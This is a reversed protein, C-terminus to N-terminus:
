ASIETLEPDVRSEFRQYDTKHSVTMPWDTCEFYHSPVAFLPLAHRAYEMLERRTAARDGQFEVIAYLRQGRHKDPRSLVAANRIGPMSALVSEVSEPYINHGSSVIMRDTRGSLHLFGNEDLHGTDGTGTFGGLEPLSSRNNTDAGAYGIFQYPSRVFVHGIDGIAVAEGKSDKISIEVGDFARGVSGEPPNETQRSVSIYGHESSGYFEVIEANPFMEQAFERVTKNLKAGASLVLRTTLLKVRKKAGLECLALLQTPVVFLVTASMMQIDQIIKDPRFHKYGVLEAGAYLARLFAYLFLSHAFSGPCIFIDKDNFEFERKDAEFSLHWSLGSRVFGKPAGSSGSTFGTYFAREINHEAKLTESWNLFDETEYQRRAIDDIAVLRCNAQPAERNFIVCDPELYELTKTVMAKPWLHNFVGINLNCMNGALFAVAFAPSNELTLVIFRHQLKISNLFEAVSIVENVIDGLAYQEGDFYFVPSNPHSAARQFLKTLLPELTKFNEPTM